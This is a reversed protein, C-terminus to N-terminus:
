GIHVLDDAFPPLVRASFGQEAEHQRYSGQAETEKDTFPLSFLPAKRM